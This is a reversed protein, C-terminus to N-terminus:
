NDGRLVVQHRGEAGGQQGVVRRAVQGGELAQRRQLFQGVLFLAVM